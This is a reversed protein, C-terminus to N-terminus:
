CGDVLYNQLWQVRRAYSLGVDCGQYGANYACLAHTINRRKNIWWSLINAGAILSTQPDMLDECVYEIGQTTRGGTWRPVVQTLGCANARSRARPNFRSEVIILSTLLTPEILNEDAVREIDQSIECAFQKREEPLDWREGPPDYALISCCLQSIILCTQATIM